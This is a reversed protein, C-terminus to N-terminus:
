DLYCFLFFFFPLRILFVGSYVQRFSDKAQFFDAILLAIAASFDFSDAKSSSRTLSEVGLCNFGSANFGFFTIENNSLLVVRANPRRGLSNVSM